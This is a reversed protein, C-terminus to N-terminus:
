CAMWSPMALSAVSSLGLTWVRMVRLKWCKLLRVIKAAHPIIARSLLWLSFREAQNEQKPDDLVALPEFRVDDRLIEDTDGLFQMSFVRARGHVIAMEVASVWDSQRAASMVARPTLVALLSPVKAKVGSEFAADLWQVSEDHLDLAEALRGLFWRMIPLSQRGKWRRAMELNTGSFIRPIPEGYPGGDSAEPPPQGTEAIFMSYSLCHALGVGLQGIRPSERILAFRGVAIEYHRFAEIRQDNKWLVIAVQAHMQCQSEDINLQGADLMQALENAYPIPDNDSEWAANIADVLRNAREIGTIGDSVALGRAILPLGRASQKSLHLQQGIMATLKAVGSPNDKYRALARDGEALMGDLDKQYEGIIILKAIAAEIAYRELGLECCRSEIQPLRKLSGSTVDGNDDFLPRFVTVQAGGILEDRDLLELRREQPITALLEIYESLEDWTKISATALLLHIGDFKQPWEHALEQPYEPSQSYREFLTAGLIALHAPVDIASTILISGALTAGVATADSDAETLVRIRALYPEADAKTFASTVAQAARLPLEIAPSLDAPKNAPFFLLLGLADYGTRKVPVKMNGQVLVTAATNYEGAILFSTVSRMFESSGIGDRRLILRAARQHVSKRVEPNVDKGLPLALPSVEYRQKDARRLWLGNLRAICATPEPLAPDATAVIRIEEHSLPTGVSALRYLLQRCEASEVTDIVISTTELDIEKRHEGMLAKVFAKGPETKHLVLYRALATLLVPHGSCMSNMTTIRNESLLAADVEHATFLESADEDSFPPSQKPTITFPARNILSSPFGYRSTSIVLRRARNAIVALVLLAEELVSGPPMEPINDVFIVGRDSAALGSLVHEQGTLSLLAHGAAQHELGLMSIGLAVGDFQESVLLGLHSKGVGYDGHLALWGPFAYEGRLTSVTDNRHALKAVLSPPAPLSQSPDILKLDRIADGFILLHQSIQNPLHEFAHQLSALLNSHSKTIQELFALRVRDHQALTPRKLVDTLADSTLQKDEDQSLLSLLHAVIQDYRHEASIADGNEFSSLREILHGRLDEPQDQECCWEFSRIFADLTVVGHGEAIATWTAWADADYSNPRRLQRLLDYLKALLNSDESTPSEIKRLNNWVEIAKSGAPLPSLRERGPSATTTFRFYLSADPNAALHCAFNAIAEVADSSRLTLNRGRAKVQELERRAAEPGSANLVSFTKDIDEGCELILVENDRLDLWRDLTLQIQYHFGRIIPSADQQRGPVFSDM